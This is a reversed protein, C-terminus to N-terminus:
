RRGAAQPGRGPEEASALDITVHCTKKLIRYIRGMSRARMRKAPPGEDVVAKAIVLRDVDVKPDKQQANALASRVVKELDRAVLKPSYHLVALADGVNKGRVQDVVLRTKQASVGLYKLKASAIM